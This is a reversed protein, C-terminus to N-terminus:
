RRYISSAIKYGVYIVVIIMFVYVLKITDGIAQASTSSFSIDGYDPSAVPTPTPTPQPEGSPSPSPSPVTYNIVLEPRYATTTEETSYYDIENAQTENDVKLMLRLVGSASVLSQITSTDLTIEIPTDLTPNASIAASGLPSAAYDTGSTSCFGSDWANSTAYYTYTAQSLVSNQLVQYVYLTSASTAYDAKPTIYLNADTVTANSPVESVDINILGRFIWDDSGYYGISFISETSTNNERTAVHNHLYADTVGTTQINATDAFSPQIPLILITLILGVFIGISRAIFTKSYM